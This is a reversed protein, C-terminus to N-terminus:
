GVTVNKSQAKRKRGYLQQDATELLDQATRGDGPYVAMGISVTVHPKEQGDRV